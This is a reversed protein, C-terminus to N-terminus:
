AGQTTSMSKAKECQLRQTDAQHAPAQDSCRRKVAKRDHSCQAVNTTSCGREDRDGAFLFLAAGLWLCFRLTISYLLAPIIVSSLPQLQTHVNRQLRTIIM